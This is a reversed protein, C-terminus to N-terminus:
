RLAKVIRALQYKKKLEDLRMNEINRLAQRSLLVRLIVAAANLKRCINTNIM